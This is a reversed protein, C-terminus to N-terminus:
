WIQHRERIAELLGASADEVLDLVREFGDGSGYYPDPVETEPYRASYDLFRHLRHQLRQPCEARLIRLNDEDMAVIWQFYNFDALTFQRARLDGIDYGRRSAAVQAREDPPKGIHYSHTGSSDTEIAQDLGAARVLHRFVGEATPSRCINGMCVFLVRVM